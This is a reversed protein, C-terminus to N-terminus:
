PITERLFRGSSAEFYRVTIVVSPRRENFVLVEIEEPDNADRHLLWAGAPVRERLEACNGPPSQHGPPVGPIWIRCSGPPPYHGPPINLRQRAEPLTPKDGPEGPPPGSRVTVGCSNLFCLSIICLSPLWKPSRCIEHISMSM